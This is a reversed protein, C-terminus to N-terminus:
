SWFAICGIIGIAWCYYAFRSLEGRGLISLLWRISFVGSGYATLMGILLIPWPETGTGSTVLDTVKLATAGGIIPIALLFSFMAAEGAEARCWMGTAITMGSRSIGPLIAAAQAVGMALAPGLTDIMREGSLKRTSFLITGTVILMVSVMFPSAFAEAFYDELLLGVAAAPISGLFLYGVTKLSAPDRQFFGVILSWIRRRLVTVVALLTGFHVIVEFTVDGTEIGLLTQGLALHGSSSVPLFETLGQVIGLLAAELYSM